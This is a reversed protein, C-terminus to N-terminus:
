DRLLLPLDHAYDDPGFGQTYVIHAFGGPSYPLVM